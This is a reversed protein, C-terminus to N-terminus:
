TQSGENCNNTTILDMTAATRPKENLVCKKNFLVRQLKMARSTTSKPRQKALTINKSAVSATTKMTKGARESSRKFEGSLTTPTRQPAFSAMTTTQQCVDEDLADADNETQVRLPKFKDKITAPSESNSRTKEATRIQSEKGAPNLGNSGQSLDYSYNAIPNMMMLEEFPSTNHLNSHAMLLGPRYLEITHLQGENSARTKLRQGLIENMM